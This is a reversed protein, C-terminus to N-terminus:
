SRPFRSRWSWRSSRASGANTIVVQYITDGGVRIPDAQDAITVTLNGAPAVAAPAQAPADNYIELCAEDGAQLGGDATVNVRNCAKTAEKVCTCHLQWTKTDGPALSDLTWNLAGGKAEFGLSAQTANLSTEYNDSVVVGTLPQTGSNTVTIM